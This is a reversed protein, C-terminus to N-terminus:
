VSQEPVHTASPVSGEFQPEHPWAHPAPSTQLLPLQMALQEPVVIDHPPTHMSVVDLGALQPAHPVAQEIPAIQRILAQWHREGVVSQPALQTFVAVSV